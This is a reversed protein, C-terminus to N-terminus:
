RAPRHIAMPTEAKKGNLALTDMDVNKNANPVDVMTPKTNPINGALVALLLFKISIKLYRYTPM